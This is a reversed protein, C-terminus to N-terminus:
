KSRRFTDGQGTDDIWGIGACTGCLLGLEKVMALRGTGACDPCQRAAAPRAPLLVVLEPYKQAGEVLAAVRLGRDEEVAFEPEEWGKTLVAGDERLVAIGGLDSRLPLLREKEALGRLDSDREERAFMALLADFQEQPIIPM